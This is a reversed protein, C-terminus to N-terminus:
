RYWIHHFISPTQFAVRLYIASVLTASVLTVCYVHEVLTEWQRYWWYPALPANGAQLRNYCFLNSKREYESDWESGLLSDVVLLHYIEQIRIRRPNDRRPGLIEFLSM